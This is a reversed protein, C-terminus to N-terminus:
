NLQLQPIYSKKYSEYHHMLKLFGISSYSAYLDLLAEQPEEEMLFLYHYAEDIEKEVLSFYAANELSIYKKEYLTAILTKKDLSMIHRLLRYQNIPDNIMLLKRKLLIKVERLRPDGEFFYNMMVLHKEMDEYGRAEYLGAISLRLYHDHREQIREKFQKIMFCDELTEDYDPDIKYVYNKMDELNMHLTEYYNELM